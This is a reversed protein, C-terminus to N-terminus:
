VEFGGLDVVVDGRLYPGPLLIADLVDLAVDVLQEGDEGEFHLEELLLMVVGDVVNAIGGLRLNGLELLDAILIELLEAM